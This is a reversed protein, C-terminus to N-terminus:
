GKQLFLCLSKLRTAELGPTLYDERGPSKEMSSGSVAVVGDPGASVRVAAAADTVLRGM